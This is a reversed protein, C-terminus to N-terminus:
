AGPSPILKLVVRLDRVNTGTRGTVVDAGVAALATHSDFRRLADEGDVGGAELLSWTQGDVVAGAAPSSGDIGDTGVSLVALDRRGAIARAALLAFHSNRGGVGAEPGACPCSLEGGSVVALPPAHTAALADLRDLLTALADEVPRDDVTTDQVATVGREGLYGMAAQRADRNDLLVRHRAVQFVPHDAKPTEALDAIEARVREPFRPAVDRVCARVEAVTSPDPLTPGSAVAEPQGDPVDSVILTWQEAPSAALALRGGKVASLHKRVANMAVIDAGSRVLEEHVRALQDPRLGDVPREMLASGGGSALFLVLDDPTRGAVARLVADGARFSGADPVPHGGVITELGPVAGAEPAVVVGTCPLPALAAVAATAMPVAAKGFAVVVVAQPPRPVVWEGCRVYAGDFSLARAVREGPDLHGLVGAFLQRLLETM